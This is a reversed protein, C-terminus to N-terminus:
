SVRRSNERASADDPQLELVRIYLPIAQEIQQSAAFYDAVDKVVTADDGANDAARQFVANVRKLDEAKPEVDAEFVLSAYLKGLRTWFAPNRSDVKVARDLAALAAKADGSTLSIEYIRQYGDINEPDIAIAQNAYKL